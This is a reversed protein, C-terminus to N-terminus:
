QPVREVTRAEQDVGHIIEMGMLRVTETLDKWPGCTRTQATDTSQCKRCIYGTVPKRPRPPGMARSVAPAVEPLEAQQAQQARLRRRKRRNMSGVLHDPIRGQALAEDLAVDIDRESMVTKLRRLRLTQEKFERYMDRIALADEGTYPGEVIDEEEGEEHQAENENGEVLSAAPGKRSRGHAEPVCPDMADDEEEVDAEAKIGLMDAIDALSERHSEAVSGCKRCIPMVKANSSDRLREILIRCAGHGLLGDVEMEGLRLGGNKQRGENANSGFAKGRLAADRGYVKDLVMQKLRQFWAFGVFITGEMVEGTRGDVMTVKASSSGTLKKLMGMLEEHTVANFATADIFKGTHAAIIGGVIEMKQALTMRSINNTTVCIDPVIGRMGLPGDHVYPGDEETYIEGVTGKQGHRTAVKDGREMTRVLLIELKVTRQGDKSTMMISTVRGVECDPASFALSGCTRYIEMKGTEPHIREKLITKGVLIDGDRVWTGVPVMGSTDLKAYANTNQLGVTKLPVKKGNDDIPLLPHGLLEVNGRSSKEFWRVTQKKYVRMGGRDIFSKKMAVADEQCHPRNMVAVCMNLGAPLEYTGIVDGMATTCLPRQVDPMTVTTAQNMEPTFGPFVSPGTITMAQKRMACQYANRPSQNHQPFPILSASTGLIQWPVIQIHTFRWAARGAKYERYNHLAEKVTPAIYLEHREWADVYEIVGARVLRWWMEEGYMSQALRIESAAKRLRDVVFFPATMVGMDCSVAISDDWIAVSTQRPLPGDRRARRLVRAAADPDRTIGALAGNVTVLKARPCAKLVEYTHEMDRCPVLEASADAGELAEAHLVSERVLEKLSETNTGQRIHALTAVNAILGCNNGEPTEVVCLNFLQSPNVGRLDVYKSRRKVPTNIREMHAITNLRNLTQLPIIVATSNAATKKVTVQGKSFARAIDASITTHSLVKQIDVEKKQGMIQKISYRMDKVLKGLLQRVMVALSVNIMEIYKNGEFTIVDLPRRGLITEILRRLMVNALYIAKAANTAPEFDKGIRPLVEGIVQLRAQHIYAARSPNDVKCHKGIDELLDDQDRAELSKDCAQRLLAVGAEPRTDPDPWVLDVLMDVSTVGLIRFLMFANPRYKKKKAADGGATLDNNRDVFPISMTFGAPTTEIITGMREIKLELDINSTSRSREDNRVSRIEAVYKDKAENPTNKKAISIMPINVRPKKQPQGIKLVGSKIFYGTPQRFPGRDAPGTGISDDLDSGVPVPFASVLPYQMLLLDDGLPVRDYDALPPKWVKQAIVDSTKLPPRGRKRKVPAAAAAAAEAALAAARQRSVEEEFAKKSAAAKAENLVLKFREHRVNVYVNVGYTLNRIKAELVNIGRVTQDEEQVCPRSIVMNEFTVVHEQLTRMYPTTFHACEEILRPLEYRMMSNMAETVQLMMPDCRQHSRMLDLQMHPSYLAQFEALDGISQELTRETPQGRFIDFVGPKDAVPAPTQAAYVRHEPEQQLEYFAKGSDTFLPDHRADESIDQLAQQGAQEPVANDHIISAAENTHAKRAVHTLEHTFAAEAVEPDM